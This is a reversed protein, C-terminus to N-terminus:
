FSDRARGMTLCSHRAFLTNCVSYHYQYFFIGQLPASVISRNMSQWSEMTIVVDFKCMELIYLTSNSYHEENFKTM